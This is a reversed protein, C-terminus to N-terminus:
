KYELTQVVTKHNIFVRTILPIRLQVNVAKVTYLINPSIMMKYNNQRVIDLFHYDEEIGNRFVIGSGFIRKKVAFSIGVNRLYFNDINLDPHIRIVQEGDIVDHQIMRFIVADNDYKATEELFVEVYNQRLTDDDDVFAIWETTVFQVGYNRVCGARHENSKHSESIEGAFQVIQIRDDHIEFNPEIGDFVIVVYWEQCTQSLISNVTDNLSPRGITPIIFTIKANNITMINKYDISFHVFSRLV